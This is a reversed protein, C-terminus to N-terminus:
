IREFLRPKPRRSKRARKEEQLKKLQREVRKLRAVIKEREKLHQRIHAWLRKAEAERAREVREKLETILNDAAALATEYFIKKRELLFEDM